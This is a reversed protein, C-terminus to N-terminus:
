RSSSVSRRRQAPLPPAQRARVVRAGRSHAVPVVVEQTETLIQVTPAPSQHRPAYKGITRLLQDEPMPKFLMMDAPVAYASPDRGATMIVCPVKALRPDALMLARLQWGDIEPLNLDLLVVAPPATQLHELAQRGDEASVVSFGESELLSVLVERTLEDDEVVLVSGTLRDTSVLHIGNM